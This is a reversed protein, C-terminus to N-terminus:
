CRVRLAGEAHTGIWGIWIGDRYRLVPGLATVLGGSGPAIQWKRKEKQLVIPLRNSVVALRRPEMCGRGWLGEPAHQLWGM